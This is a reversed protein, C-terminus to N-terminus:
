TLSPRGQSVADVLVSTTNLVKLNVPADVDNIVYNASHLLDLVSHKAFDLRLATSFAVKTYRICSSSCIFRIKYPLNSVFILKQV